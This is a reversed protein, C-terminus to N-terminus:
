FFYHARQHIYKGDPSDLVAGCFDCIFMGLQELDGVKLVTLTNEKEMDQVVVYENISNKKLISNLVEALEEIYGPFEFTFYKINEGTQGISLTESYFSKIEESNIIVNSLYEPFFSTDLRINMNKNNKIARLFLYTEV